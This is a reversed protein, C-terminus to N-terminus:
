LSRQGAKIEATPIDLPGLAVLERSARLAGVAVIEPIGLGPTVTGKALLGDRMAFQEYHMGRHVDADAQKLARVYSTLKEVLADLEVVVKAAREKAAKAADQAAVLDKRRKDLEAQKALEAENQEAWVVRELELLAAERQAKAEQFARVDHATTRMRQEAKRVAAEAESRETVLDVILSDGSM